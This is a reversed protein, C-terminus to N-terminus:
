ALHLIFEGLKVSHDFFFRHLLVLQFCDILIELLGKVLLLLLDIVLIINDM